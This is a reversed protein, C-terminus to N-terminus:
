APEGMDTWFGAAGDDLPKQQYAGWWAAVEPNTFDVVGCDGGWPWPMDYSKGTRVDKVFYGLSDAEEWQRANAKSIVPDQSLSRFLM